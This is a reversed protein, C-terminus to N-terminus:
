GSTVPSTATTPIGFLRRANGGAVAERADATLEIGRLQEDFAGAAMDFPFDTGFVVHSPGVLDLLFRLPTPAHTVTDCWFRDLYASPPRRCGVCEPRVDHGHDLRGIQYPLYGGGHMLVVRLDPLEDLVGSFILRAASVTSQLPNGILNTLYFDSLGPQAGVYYPHFVLPVGLTSATALVPRVGADDLPRGEVAPGIEAGPMGLDEVARRLETVAADTDQMPLTAIGVLRGGSEATLSALADNARRAFEATEDPAAWYMFLTPAISIVSIDTGAKDMAALRKEVDFFVPDLPYHYGQRHVLEEHGDVTEVRLGDFGAGRRADSIVTPPIFHNHVDVTLM